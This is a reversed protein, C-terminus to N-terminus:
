SYLRTGMISMLGRVGSKNSGKSSTKIDVFFRSTCLIGVQLAIEM